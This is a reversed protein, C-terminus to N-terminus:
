VNCDQLQSQGPPEHYTNPSLHSLHSVNKRILVRRKPRFEPCKRLRSWLKSLVDIPGSYSIKWQSLVLMIFWYVALVGFGISLYLIKTKNLDVWSEMAVTYAVGGFVVLAWMILPVIPMFNTVIKKRGSTGWGTKNITMIAWFKIPVLSTMYLFSYMSTYMMVADGRLFSAYISKLIGVIQIVLLALIINWLVGSYFLRVVTITVLLPFTTTVVAEYTMWIHHKHFWMANYLLERFYSKTWRTQQNLWRLYQAPTETYAFSRVTYRTGYGLSLIRNTLHRDDGFTCRTGLFTQKYWDDVFGQLLDNRYLGLPGSICSVVNFYSQCAREINFAMWYRLSSLFSIWSDSPNWIRLEGGVAGISDDADLIKALERTCQPDLITDSDCVQIYDVTNGLAKFATYMVERKGGWKQMVCVYRKNQITDELARNTGHVIRPSGNKVETKVESSPKSFNAMKLQVKFPVKVHYNQQSVCTEAEEGFVELFIDRMYLDDKKNGDIVMIVKLDQYDIDRASELCKRLLFPDEQYASICLAIKKNKCDPLVETRIRRNELLAFISQMLLHFFLIAGYLGFSLYGDATYIFRLGYAYAVVLGASLLVCFVTTLIIRAVQQCQMVFSYRHHLDKQRSNYISMPSM